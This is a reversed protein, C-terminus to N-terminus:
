EGSMGPGSSSMAPWGMSNAPNMPACMAMPHTAMQYKARLEHCAAARGVVCGLSCGHGVGAEPAAEAGVKHVEERQGRQDGDGDVARVQRAPELCQPQDGTGEDADPEAHVEHHAVAARRALQGHARADDHVVARGDGALRREHAVRHQEPQGHQGRGRQGVRRQLDGFIVVHRQAEHLLAHQHGRCRGRPVLAHVERHVHPHPALEDGDEEVLALLRQM